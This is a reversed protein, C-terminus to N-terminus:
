SSLVLEAPTKRYLQKSLFQRLRELPWTNVVDEATVWERQAAGIGLRMHALDEVCSAVGSIAIKVGSAVAKRVYGDPLAVHKPNASIELAVQRRFAAQCVAHLDFAYPKGEGLGRADPYGVINVRPHEIAKLLQRTIQDSPHYMGDHICAIVVEFGKLSELPYDLQGHPGISLEIAHLISTRDQLEESVKRIETRQREISGSDRFDKALATATFYEYGLDSAAVALGRINTFGDTYPSVSHLDGRLDSLEVLQPVRGKLAARVEGKGERLPPPVWQMGLLRYIEEESMANKTANLKNFLRILADVKEPTPFPLCWHHMSGLVAGYNRQVALKHLSNIHAASGSWAVLAVGYMTPPVVWLAVKLGESTYAIAKKFERKLERGSTWCRSWQKFSCFFELVDEPRNSAAILDIDGVTQQMRRVSGAYSYRVVAEHSALRALAEDATALAEALPWHVSKKKKKRYHRWSRRHQVVSMLSLPQIITLM